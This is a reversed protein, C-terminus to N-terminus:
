GIAIKTQRELQNSELVEVVEESPKMVFTGSYTPMNKVLPETDKYVKWAKIIQYDTAGAKRQKMVHAHIARVHEEPLEGVAYEEPLYGYGDYKGEFAALMVENEEEYESVAALVIPITMISYMDKLSSGDGDSDLRKVATALSNRQARASILMRQVIYSKHQREHKSVAVPKAQHELLPVNSASLTDQITNLNDKLNTVILPEELPHVGEIMANNPEVTYMIEGRCKHFMEEKASTQLTSQPVEVNLLRLYKIERASPRLQRLPARKLKSQAQMSAMITSYVKYVEKAEEREMLKRLKKMPHEIREVLGRCWTLAGALQEPENSPSSLREM